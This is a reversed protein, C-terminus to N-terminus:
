GPGIVQYAKTPAGAFVTSDALLSIGPLTAILGM